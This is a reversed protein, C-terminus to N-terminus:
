FIKIFINGGVDVLANKTNIFEIDLEKSYFLISDKTTVVDFEMMDNNFHYYGKKGTIEIFTSNLRMCSPYDDIQIQDAREVCLVYVSDKAFCTCSILIFILTFIIRM